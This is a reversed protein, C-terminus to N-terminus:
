LCIRWSSKYQLHATQSLSPLFVQKGGERKERGKRKLILDTKILLCRRKWGLGVGFGLNLWCGSSKSSSQSPLCNGSEANTIFDPIKTLTCHGSLAPQSRVLCSRGVPMQLGVGPTSFLDRLQLCSQIQLLSNPLLRLLSM